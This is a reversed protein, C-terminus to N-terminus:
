DIENNTRNAHEIEAGITVGDLRGKPRWILNVSSAYGESLSLDDQFSKLDINIYGGSLSSSLGPTWSHEVALGAGTTASAAAASLRNGGPVMM